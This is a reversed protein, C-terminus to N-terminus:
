KRTILTGHAAAAAGGTRNQPCALTVSGVDFECVMKDQHPTNHYRWIIELTKSDTWHFSASIKQGYVLERIPVWSESGLPLKPTVATHWVGRGATLVTDGNSTNLRIDCTEPAFSFTVETIGSANEDLIFTKDNVMNECGSDMTQMAPLVYDWICNHIAQFDDIEGSLALVADYEPMVVCFQGYAGDGRYCGHTAMWFQYGYGQTWDPRTDGTRSNDAQRSTAASVWAESLIRQGNWVGKNLYLQGLKAIDEVRLM